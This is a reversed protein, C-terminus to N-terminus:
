RPRIYGRLKLDFVLRFAVIRSGEQIQERLDTPVALKASGKLVFTVIEIEM